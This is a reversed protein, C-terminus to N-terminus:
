CEVRPSPGLCWTKHAFRITTECTAVPSPCLSVRRYSFHSEPWENADNVEVMRPLPLRSSAYSYPAISIRSAPARFNLSPKAHLIPICIRGNLVVPRVKREHGEAVARM